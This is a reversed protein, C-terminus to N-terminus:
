AIFGVRRAEEAGIELYALAKTPVLFLNGKSDTLNILKSGSEIAEAVKKEVAAASEATDFSLERASHKIGIRIDM